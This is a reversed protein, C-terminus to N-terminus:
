SKWPATRCNASRASVTKKRKSGSLGPVVPSVISTKARERRPSSNLTRTSRLLHSM